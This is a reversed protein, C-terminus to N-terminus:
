ACIKNFNKSMNSDIPRGRKKESSMWLRFNTMCTFHYIAEEAVLDNCSSLRFHVEMAHNDGRKLCHEILTKVFPLKEVRSVTSYKKDVNKTCM